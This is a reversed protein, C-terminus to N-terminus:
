IKFQRFPNINGSKMQGQINLKNGVNHLLHNGFSKFPNLGYDNLRNNIAAVDTVTNSLKRFKPNNEFLHRTDQLIFKSNESTSLHNSKLISDIFYQCNNDKGSYTFFKNGMLNKTKELMSNMTLNQSFSVNMVQSKNPISKRSITIVDNKEVIFHNRETKIYLFLHFLKDTETEALRKNFEGMSTINLLLRLASSLEVRGITMQIINENGYNRLMSNTNISFDNGKLLDIFTM